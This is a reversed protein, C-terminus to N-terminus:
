MVKKTTGDSYRIIRVGRLPTTSRKGDLTYTGIIHANNADAQKIATEEIEKVTFDKWYDTTKYKFKAVKPVYLTGYTTFVDESIEQPRTSM